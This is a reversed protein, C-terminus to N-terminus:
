AVGGAIIRGAAVLSFAVVIRGMIEIYQCLNSFPIVITSTRVQVTLDPMCAAAITKSTNLATALNVTQRNSSKAPNADVGTDTGAALANGLDSLPTAMDFLTCNRTHQEKSIACQIADGDCVFAGCGGNWTSTKCISIDPNDECFKASKCITSTPNNKCFDQMPDTSPPPKQETTTTAQGGGSPTNTVTVTKSGDGATATTTTTTSGDSNTVTAKTVSPTTPAPIPNPNQPVGALVCMKKGNLTGLIQGTPCTDPPLSGMAPINTPNSCTSGDFAYNGEAVYHYVGNLLFRAVAQSGSFTAYCTGDCVVIVSNTPSTGWDYKGQSLFTGKKAVCTNPTECIGTTANRVQPAVCAPVATCTESSVPTSNGGQVLNGGAPCGYMQGVTGANTPSGGLLIQCVNGVVTLSSLYSAGWNATVYATCASMASPYIQSSGRVPPSSYGISYSPTNEANAIGSFLLICCFILRYFNAM